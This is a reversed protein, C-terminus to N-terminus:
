CNMHVVKPDYIQRGQGYPTMGAQSAGSNSGMQLRIIGESEQLLEPSFVRKNKESYKPGFEPGDFGNM